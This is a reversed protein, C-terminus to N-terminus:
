FNTFITSLGSKHSSSGSGSDSGTFFFGPAPLFVSRSRLVTQLLLSISRQLSVINFSFVTSCFIQLRSVLQAANPEEIITSLTKVDIENSMGLM